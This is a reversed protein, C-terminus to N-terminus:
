PLQPHDHLPSLIENGTFSFHQVPQAQPGVADQAAEGGQLAGGQGRRLSLLEAEEIGRLACASWYINKKKFSFSGFLIKGRFETERIQSFIRLLLGIGWHPPVPPTSDNPAAPCPIPSGGPLLHLVTSIM